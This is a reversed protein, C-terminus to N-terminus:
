PLVTQIDTNYTPTSNWFKLNSIISSVDLYKKNPKSVSNSRMLTSNEHVSLKHCPAKPASAKRVELKPVNSSSPVGNVIPISNVKSVESEDQEQNTNM